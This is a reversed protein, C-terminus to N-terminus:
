YPFLKFNYTFTNLGNYLSLADGKRVPISFCAGDYYTGGIWLVLNNNVYLASMSNYMECSGTLLGDFPVTIQPATSASEQLTITIGNTYDPICRSQSLLFAKRNCCSPMRVKITMRKM